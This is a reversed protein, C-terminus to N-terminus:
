AHAPHLTPLGVQLDSGNPAALGKSSKHRPTFLEDFLTIAPERRFLKLTLTYM